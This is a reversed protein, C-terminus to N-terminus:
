GTPLLGAGQLAVRIDHPNTPATMAARLGIEGAQYLSFLSQDFTQMGDYEGEAILEEITEGGGASPDVMRDAIRGTVVM